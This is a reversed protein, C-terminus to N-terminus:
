TLGTTWHMATGKYCIVAAPQCSLWSIYSRHDRYEGEKGSAQTSATASSLRLECKCWWPTCLNIMAVWCSFLKSKKKQSFKTRRSCHFSWETCSALFGWWTTHINVAPIFPHLLFPANKCSHSCPPWAHELFRHIASTDGKLSTGPFWWPSTPTLLAQRLGRDPADPPPNLHARVAQVQQLILLWMSFSSKTFRRVNMSSLVNWEVPFTFRWLTRVHPVSVGCTTM